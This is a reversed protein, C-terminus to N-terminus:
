LPCIVQGPDCLLNTGPGSGKRSGQAAVAALSLRSHGPPQARTPRSLGGRTLSSPRHPGPRGAQGTLILGAREKSGVHDGPATHHAARPPTLTGPVRDGTVASLRPARSKGPWWGERPPSGLESTLPGKVGLAELPAWAPSLRGGGPQKAGGPDELPPQESGPTKSSSLYTLAGRHPPLSAWRM